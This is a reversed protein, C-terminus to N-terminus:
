RELAVKFSKSSKKDGTRIFAIYVGSAAARGADNAGDWHAMGNVDAKLSRVLEGLFTYIKIRAGAPLNAFHMVDSVSNPRYPNPYIKVASLGTGPNSQMLQFTSLHWTQGTVLNNATDSVSPLPVWVANVEDYLALVLRSRDIGPPLDAIRYPLTITIAGLVLTPPFHNIVLGIGTPTLHSVASYPGALTFTSPMITLRTSGGIAGSPLLVSITGYSTELSVTAEQLALANGQSSLLTRTSGAEVYASRLGSQGRAEIRLWYTTDIGLDSFTCSLANVLRTSNVVSFDSKTSAEVYYVTHSSNGNPEWRLSFGDILMDFFAEAKPLAYATAPRTLPAGLEVPPDSPVGTLNLASVRMHYSTDSQLGTFVANLNLTVSSHVTGSFDTNSSIWAQYYTGAPNIPPVINNWRATLSSVGVESALFPAYEPDYASTAYPDFNVAPIARDLRNIATVRAYYTTNPTLGSFTASSLVTTSSPEMSGFLADNDLEVLYRTDAPNGNVLWKVTMTVPTIAATRKVPPNALTATAPTVVYNVSNELNVTGARFYYSTNPSLGTITLRNLALALTSSSFLPGDFAPSTSAQLLYSEASTAQSDNILPNWNVTVSSRFVGAFGVGTLPLPLTQRYEPYTNSYVTAGNYLAGARFFYTTNPSLGQVILGSIAGSPSASSVAVTSFFRHVSAEAVHGEAATGPTFSIAASSSWVNDLSVGTLNEPFGTRTSPLVTFNPTLQWNLTGLRLYYTNNPALGALTLSRQEESYEYTASSYVTGGSFNTTSGQLLYGEAAFSQPSGPLPTFRATIAQPEAEIDILEADVPLALTVTSLQPGYNPAYATNLGAVRFYYTTNADLTVIALSNKATNYTASSHLTEVASFTGTAAELRYGMAEAAGLATWSFAASGDTVAGRTLGAPVPSLTTFVRTTEVNALGSINLTGVRYYYTTNAVLPALTASAIASNATSWPVPSAMDQSLSYNLSYGESDQAQVASDVPMWSVVASTQSVAESIGSLRLAPTATSIYATYATAAGSSGRARVKFNYLTNANLGAIDIPSGLPNIYPAVIEPNVGDNYALEYITAEHNNNTNWGITAIATYSSQATFYEPVSYLGTPAALQTITYTSRYGADTDGSSKVQFYYTANAHLGTYTVPSVAPGSSIYWAFTDTDSLVGIFPSLGGTWAFTVANTTVAGVTPANVVARAPAAAALLCAAAIIFKARSLM